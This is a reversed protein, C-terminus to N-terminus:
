GTRRRRERIVIGGETTGSTLERMHDAEGLQPNRAVYFRGAFAFAGAGEDHIPWLMAVVSGAGAAEHSVRTRHLRQRAWRSDQSCRELAPLAEDDGLAVDQPAPRLQEELLRRVLRVSGGGCARGPSAPLRAEDILRPQLPQVLRLLM